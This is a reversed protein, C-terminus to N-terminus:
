NRIRWYVFKRQCYVKRRM